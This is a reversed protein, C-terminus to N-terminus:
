ENNEAVGKYYFKIVLSFEHPPEITVEDTRPMEECEEKEFQKNIEMNRENEDMLYHFREQSTMSVDFNDNEEMITHLKKNENIMNKNERHVEIAKSSKFTYPFHFSMKKCQELTFNTNSKYEETYWQMKWEKASFIQKDTLPIFKTFIFKDKLLHAISQQSICKHKCELYKEGFAKSVHKHISTVADCWEECQENCACNFYDIASDVFVNRIIDSEDINMDRKGITAFADLLVDERLPIFLKVDAKSTHDHFAFHYLQSGLDFLQPTAKVSYKSSDFDEDYNSLINTVNDNVYSVIYMLFRFFKKISLIYQPTAKVSFESLDFDKDYNSLIHLINDQVYSIVYMLFQFFSKMSNIKM